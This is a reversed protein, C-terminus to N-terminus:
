ERRRRAIMMIAMGLLSGSSPEPVFEYTVTAVFKSRIASTSTLVGGGGTSSASGGGTLTSFDFSITGAGLYPSLEFVTMRSQMASGISGSGSVSISDSGFFNPAGAESDATIPGSASNIALTNVTLQDFPTGGMPIPGTVKLATGISVTATGGTPAENDFTRSGGVSELSVDLTVKILPQGGPDSYQPVDFFDIWAVPYGGLGPNDGVFTHTLLGAQVAGGLWVFVVPAVLARFM